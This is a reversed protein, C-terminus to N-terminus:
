ETIEQRAIETEMYDPLNTLSSLLSYLLSLLRELGQDSNESGQERIM